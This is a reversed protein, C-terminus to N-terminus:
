AEAESGDSLIAAIEASRDDASPAFPAILLATWGNPPLIASITNM